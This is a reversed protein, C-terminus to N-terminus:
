MYLMCAPIIACKPNKASVHVNNIWLQTQRIEVYVQLPTFKFIEKEFRTLRWELFHAQLALPLNLSQTKMFLKECIYTHTYTYYKHLAKELFMIELSPM